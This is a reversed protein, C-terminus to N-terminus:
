FTTANQTGALVTFNFYQGAALYQSENNFEAFGANPGTGFTVFVVGGKSATIASVADGTNTVYSQITTQAFRKKNIIAAQNNSSTSAFGTEEDIVM